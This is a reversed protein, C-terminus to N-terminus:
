RVVAGSRIIGRIGDQVAKELLEGFSLDERHSFYSILMPANVGAIVELQPLEKRLLGALNWCSGGKLDVFVVSHEPKHEKIHDMVRGALVPLSDQANSLTFVDEQVGIIKEVTQLLSSSFNEHAIIFTLIKKM